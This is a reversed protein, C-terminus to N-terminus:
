LRHMADSAMRKLRDTQYGLTPLERYTRRVLQPDLDYKVIGYTSDITIAKRVADLITADMSDVGDAMMQQKGTIVSTALSVERDSWGDRSADNQM